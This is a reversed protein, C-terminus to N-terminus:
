KMSTEWSVFVKFAATYLWSIRDTPLSAWYFVRESRVPFVVAPM